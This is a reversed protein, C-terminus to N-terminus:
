DDAQPRLRREEELERAEAVLAALWRPLRTPPEFEALYLGIVEALATPNSGYYRCFSRWGDRSEPTVNALNFRRDAAPMAGVM